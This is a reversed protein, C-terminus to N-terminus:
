HRTTDVTTIVIDAEIVKNPEIEINPVKKKWLHWQQDEIRIEYDIMPYQSTSPLSVSTFEQLHNGFKTRTHLNMSGGVGWISAFIV